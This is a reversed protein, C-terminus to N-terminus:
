PRHANAHAQITVVGMLVLCILLVITLIGAEVGMFFVDSHTPYNATALHWAISVSAIALLAVILLLCRRPFM